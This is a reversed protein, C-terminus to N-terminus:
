PSSVTLADYFLELWLELMGLQWIKEGLRRQRRLEGPAEEGKLLADLYDHRFLDRRALQRLLSRFERRWPGLCWATAPVGMGRKPRQLIATPLLGDDALLRKLLYKEETGRMLYEAPITLAFRALRRDFFPALMTLGAHRSLAAARPLINQSGKLWYNAWRLRDFLHPLRPEELFARVSGLLDGDQAGTLLRPRYLAPEQGYFHHFTHLYREARQDASDTDATGYLEAAFMARNPWGAFLQDGGEGNCLHTLGAAHVAENGLLLPFTVPDGFPEGLQWALRRLLRDAGRATPTVPVLTLPLGLCTAIQEAHPRETNYPPGFDLHFLRPRTGNRALWAAVASSDVGGSLHVAPSGVDALHRALAGSLEERLRALWVHEDGEDTGTAEDPPALLEQCIPTVIPSRFHLATNPPVVAIGDILTRPAAVFSLALYSHLATLDLARRQWLAPLALLAALSDSFWLSEGVRAYFVRRAGFPDHALTLQGAQANYWVLAYSGDAEDRALAPPGITSLSDLLPNNGITAGVLVVFGGGALNTIPTTSAIEVSHDHREHSRTSLGLRRLASALQDHNGEDAGWYGLLGIM